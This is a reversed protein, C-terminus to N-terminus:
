AAARRRGLALTLGVIATFMLAALLFPARIGLAAAVLGMSLQGTAMGMASVSSSAGYASGRREAPTRLSLLTFAVPMLGGAATGIVVEAAIVPYFNSIILFSAAAFAAGGAAGILIREYGIRAGL